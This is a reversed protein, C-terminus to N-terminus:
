GTNALMTMIIMIMRRRQNVGERLLRGLDKSSLGDAGVGQDQLM